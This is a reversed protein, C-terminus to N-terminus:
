KRCTRSLYLYRASLLLDAAILPWFAANLQQGAVPVLVVMSMILAFNTIQYWFVVNKCKKIWVFIVPVICLPNLWLILLNPSTAEHVSIVVLFTILCGALFLISFYVADVWKTICRRKLDFIVVSALLGFVLWCVALPTLFWPTPGATPAGAPLDIVVEVKDALPTGSKTKAGAIMKELQIPVFSVERPSLQYDIGSGLALDIGFQYWPYNQHYYRMISRFSVKESATDFDSPGLVFASDAASRLIMDLPRTACNDKVYNYRYVRNEPRANDALLELLRTKQETSINLHQAVMRRGDNHYNWVFNEWPQIGLMYDTEGKVFRYVFGPANFDFVGWNALIDGTLPGNVRLGTHGELEYIESGQYCTVLWFDTDDIHDAKVPLACLLVALVWILTYRYTQSNAAFPAM